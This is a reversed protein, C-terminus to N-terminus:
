PGCSSLCTWPWRRTSPVVPLTSAGALIAKAVLPYRREIEPHYAVDTNTALAGLRLGGSATNEIGRLPLHTIDVLRAPRAVREKMLDLLNTGGAIFAGGEVAVERVASPVDDARVYSFANM